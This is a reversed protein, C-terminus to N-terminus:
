DPTTEKARGKSQPTNNGREIGKSEEERALDSIDLFYDSVNL